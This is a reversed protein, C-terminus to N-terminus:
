HDKYYFTLNKPDLGLLVRLEEGASIKKNEDRDRMWMEIVAKNNKRM